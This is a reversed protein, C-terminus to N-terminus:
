GIRYIDTGYWFRMGVAICIGTGGCPDVRGDEAEDLM